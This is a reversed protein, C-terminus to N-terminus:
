NLEDGPSVMAHPFLWTLRSCKDDCGTEIPLAMAVGSRTLASFDMGPVRTLTKLDGVPGLCRRHVM